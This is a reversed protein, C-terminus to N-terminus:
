KYSHVIKTSWCIRNPARHKLKRLEMSESAPSSGPRAKRSRLSLPRSKHLLTERSAAATTAVASMLLLRAWPFFQAEGHWQELWRVECAATFAFRCFTFDCRADSWGLSNLPFTKTEPEVLENRSRLCFRRM